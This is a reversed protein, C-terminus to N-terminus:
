PSVHVNIINSAGWAYPYGQAGPHPLAVRFTYTTPEDTAHFRYAYHFHGKIGAVVQAFIRWGRREKVEVDLTV